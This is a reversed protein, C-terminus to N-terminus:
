YTIGTSDKKVTTKIDAMDKWTLLFSFSTDLSYYRATSHYLPKTTVEGSLTWDHLDRAVRFSLSKLKFLGERLSSNDWLSVSEWIDTLPNKQYSDSSLDMATLDDDFLWAYYRWVASNASSSSLSLTLDDGLKLSGSLSFALSSESFRILSQSYSLSPAISWVSKDTAAADSKWSPAFSASLSSLSFKEDGYAVWGSGVVPKYSKARSAALSANFTAWAFTTTNSVAYKDTPDYVFSDNLTPWGTAGIKASATINDYSFDAGKSKRYMRSGVSLNAFGANLAIAGTYSDLTPPLAATLTLSQTLNGPRAALSMSLSHSTISTPDWSIWNDDMSTASISDYKRNYITADMGWNLSSAGWLWSSAFPKLGLKLSETLKHAEYIKDANRLTTANAAITSTGTGDDYLYPRWRNTDEYTLNLSSSLLDSYAANADIAAAVRYSLLSYTLQKISIDDPSQWNAYRYSYESM